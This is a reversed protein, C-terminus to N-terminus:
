QPRCVMELPTVGLTEEIAVRLREGDVYDYEHIKQVMAEISEPSHEEMMRGILGYTAQYYVETQDGVDQAQTWLLVRAGITVLSEEAVEPTYPAFLGIEECVRSAVYSAIGERYWRTYYNEFEGDETRRDGLITGTPSSILAFETYEHVVGFILRLPFYLNAVSESVLSGRNMVPLAVQLYPTEEPGRWKSEIHLEAPWIETEILQILIKQRLSIGLKEWEAAIANDMRRAFIYGALYRRAPYEVKLVKGEYSQYTESQSLHHSYRLRMTFRPSRIPLRMEIHLKPEASIQRLRQDEAAGQLIPLVFALAALPLLRVPLSASNSKTRLKRTAM